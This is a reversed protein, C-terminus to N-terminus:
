FCWCLRAEVSAPQPRLSQRLSQHLRASVANAHAIESADIVGDGNLDCEAFNEASGAGSWEYEAFDVSGDQNTDMKSMSPVLAIEDVTAVETVERGPITGLGKFMKSAAIEGSAEAFKQFEPHNIWQELLTQDVEKLVVALKNANFAPTDSSRPNQNVDIAKFIDKTSLAAAAAHSHLEMGFREIINKEYKPDELVDLLNDMRVQKLSILLENGSQGGRFVETSEEDVCQNRSFKLKFEPPHKCGIKKDDQHERFIELWTDFDVCSGYQVVDPCNAFRTAAATCIYNQNEDEAPAPAPATQNPTKKTEKDDSGSCGMDIQLSGDWISRYVVGM